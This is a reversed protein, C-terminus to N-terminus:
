RTQPRNMLCVKCVNLLLKDPTVDKLGIKKVIDFWKSPNTNNAEDFIKDYFSSIQNKKLKLFMKKLNIYKESRRNKWFKRKM